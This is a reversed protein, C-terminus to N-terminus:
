RRPRRAHRRAAQRSEQVELRKSPDTFYSGGEDPADDFTGGCKGCRYLGVEVTPPAVSAGCSPCTKSKPKTM